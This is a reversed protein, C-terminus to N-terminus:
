AMQRARVGGDSSRCARSGIRRLNGAVIRGFSLNYVWCCNFGVDVAVGLVVNGVTLPDSAREAMQSQGRDMAEALRSSAVVFWLVELTGM